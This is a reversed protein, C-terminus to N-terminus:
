YERYLVARSTSVQVCQKALQAFLSVQEKYASYADVNYADAEAIRDLVATKFSTKIAFLTQTISHQSDYDAADTDRPRDTRLIAALNLQGEKNVLPHWVDSLFVVQPLTEPCGDLKLIFQFVAGKYYGKHLFLIGQW